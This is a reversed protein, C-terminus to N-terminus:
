ARLIVVESGAYDRTAAITARDSPSLGATRAEQELGTATVLDLSIAHDKVERRGERDVTERRREIVLHGDAARIATPRSAYVVGDRECV